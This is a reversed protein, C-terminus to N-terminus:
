GFLKRWWSRECGAITVIHEWLKRQSEFLIPYRTRIRSVGNQITQPSERCVVQMSQDMKMDQEGAHIGDVDVLMDHTLACVFRLIRPLNADQSADQAERILPYLSRTIDIINDVLEKHRRYFAPCANRIKDACLFLKEPDMRKLNDVMDTWRSELEQRKPEPATSLQLELSLLYKLFEEDDQLKNYESELLVIDQFHEVMTAYGSEGPDLRCCAKALELAAGFGYAEALDLSLNALKWAVYSRLEADEQVLTAIRNVTANVGPLDNKKIYIICAFYLADFDQFDFKGDAEIAQEIQALAQDYEHRTLHIEALGIHHEANIPEAQSARQYLGMAEDLLEATRVAGSQSEPSSMIEHAWQHRVRAANHLYFASVDEGKILHELQAISKEYDRLQLFCFALLDRASEFQPALVLVHKFKLAAMRHEGKNLLEIGLEFNERIRKGYREMADYNSRAAPNSLTEYAYRIKQFGEPDKEPPHKRVSLYYARKIEEPTADKSVGLVGYLDQEM